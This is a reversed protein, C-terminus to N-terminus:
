PNLADSPFKGADYALAACKQAFIMNAVAEQTGNVWLQRFLEDPTNVVLVDDEIEQRRNEKQIEIARRRKRGIEQPPLNTFAAFFLQPKGGRLLERCFAVPYIWDLDSRRLGVEEELERCIDVTFFDSFACAKDNWATEGSATCHFGGPYVALRKTAGLSESYWTPKSRLPLYPLIEGSEHRTFVIVAIGVANSLRRDTWPPLRRGYQSQLVARLSVPSSALKLGAQWDMVYNSRLGDSYKCRQLTLAKTLPNYDALRVVRDDRVLRTQRKFELYAQNQCDSLEPPPEKALVFSDKLKTISFSDAFQEVNEWQQEVFEELLVYPLSEEALNEDVYCSLLYQLDYNLFESNHKGARLHEYIRDVIKIGTEAVLTEIFGV